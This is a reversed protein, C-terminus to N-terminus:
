IIFSSKPEVERHLVGVLVLAHDEVHDVQAFASGQEGFAQGRDDLGRTPRSPLSHRLVVNEVELRREM